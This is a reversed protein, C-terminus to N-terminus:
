QWYQVGPISLSSSCNLCNIASSSFRGGASDLLANNSLGYSGFSTLGFRGGTTNGSITGRQGAGLGTRYRMFDSPLPGGNIGGRNVDISSFLDQHLTRYPNTFERFDAMNMMGMRHANQLQQYPAGIEMQMQQQFMQNRQLQQRQLEMVRQGAFPDSPNSRMYQLADQLEARMEMRASRVEEGLRSSRRFTEGGLKLTELEQVMRNIRRPDLDHENALDQVREILDELLEEGEEVDSEDKSRLRNKINKRVDGKVIQELKAMVKASSKRDDPDLSDLKDLHCRVKEDRSLVKGKSDKRCEKIATKLDDKDKKRKEVLEKDDDDKDKKDKEVVNDACKDGLRKRVIKAIDAAIEEKVDDTELNLKFDGKVRYKFTKFDKTGSHASVEAETYVKKDLTTERFNILFRKGCIRQTMLKSAVEDQATEVETKTQQARAPEAPQAGKAHNVTVAGPGSKGDLQIIIQQPRAGGAISEGDNSAMHLAEFAPNWSINAALVALLASKLFFQKNMLAKM